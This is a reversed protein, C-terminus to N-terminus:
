KSINNLYENVKNKYFQNFQPIVNYFLELDTKKNNNYEFIEKPNSYNKVNSENSERKEEMDRENEAKEAELLKTLIKEQRFITNNNIMKNLIEKETQEMEQMMKNLESDPLKGAKKIDNQMQNLMQRIAEQQAAMRVLEESLSNGPRKNNQGQKGMKNKLDELQKNLAEQLKRANQMSQKKGEKGGGPKNCSGPKNCKGNGKSKSQMQMNSQMKELSENLVLALNNISTMAYQQKASANGIHRKAMNDIAQKMNNQIDAIEKNVFSSIQIQRKSLAFLSDEIMKSDEQIEKQQQILKIYEPNTPSTKSFKLMVEEQNFSIKLLNDLIQRLSNYDEAQNEQEVEDKYNNLDNAASEIDESANKQNKAANSNKNKSLNEKANSMERKAKDLKDELKPLAKNDKISKGLEELKKVNDKAEQLKNELDTQQNSLKEKDEKKNLTNESLEKQKKALDNLMDINENLKNEFELQKFLEMSRDLEKEIDKNSLKIEDIKKQLEDKNFDKTLDEIKKLLDKIDDTLLKDFMEQLMKQKELLDPDPENIQQQIAMRNQLDKKLNNVNQKVQNYKEILNIVKQKDEWSTNKKDYLNQNVADMEKKVLSLEKLSEKINQNIDDYNEELNKQIEKLEPLRYKITETKASKSGNVADNDWVEFYYEINDSLDINMNSLDIYHYFTQRNILKNIKIEEINFTQSKKDDRWNFTLKKFGYDDAIEGKFYILKFNVSDTKQEIDIVPKADKIVNISFVMSDNCNVNVNYPVISYIINDLAKATTEFYNQKSAKLIKDIKNIRFNIGDTERTYFKWTINTGEPIVMDGINAINEDTKGIYSPYNVTLVFNLIIPKSLVNIKYDVSRYECSEFFFDISSNLNKLKYEFELNNKKILKYTGIQTKIYVDNPVETGILKLKIIYDENQLVNLHKNLLIFKFPMPKEFHKNHQVIRTTPETIVNPFVILLSIIIFIPILSYKFYKLTTKFDIIKIFKLPKILETKQNISENILEQSGQNENALEKLQLINILKDQVEEFHNGIIEAAQNHSICKGIKFLKFM